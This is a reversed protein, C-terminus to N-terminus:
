FIRRYPKHVHANSQIVERLIRNTEEPSMGFAYNRSVYVAKKTTLFRWLSNNNFKKSLDLFKLFNSQSLDSKSIPHGMLQIKIPHGM